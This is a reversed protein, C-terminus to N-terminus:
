RSQHTTPIKGLETNLIIVSSDNAIKIDQLRVSM